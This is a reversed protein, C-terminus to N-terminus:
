PASNVTTQVGSRKPRSRRNRVSLCYCLVKEMDEESAVGAGFLTNVTERNPPLSTLKYGAGDQLDVKAKVRHSYPTWESFRNVYEWVRDFKTHFLHM